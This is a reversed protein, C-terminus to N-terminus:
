CYKKTHLFNWKKKKEDKGLNKTLKKSLSSFQEM